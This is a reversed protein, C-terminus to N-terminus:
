SQKAKPRSLSEISILPKGAATQAASTQSVPCTSCAGCGSKKHAMTAWGRRVLYIAAALITAVVIATQGDLLTSLDALM